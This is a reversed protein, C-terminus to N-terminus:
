LVNGLPPPPNSPMMHNRTDRTQLAHKPTLKHHWMDPPIFSIIFLHIPSETGLM